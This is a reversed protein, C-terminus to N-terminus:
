AARAEVLELPDVRADPAIRRILGSLVRGPGVEVFEEVGSRRMAVVTERWRVPGTLAEVLERRVDEFPAASHCSFVTVRPPRLRVGHLAEAFETAAPAMYPSHFAAPVPLRKARVGLAHAGRELRGICELAGSLVSQNPSNDNAVTLGFREAIAAAEEIPALVAAMGTPPGMRAARDMAQGRAVALHLGDEVTLVGAAVLAALEGLSHGAVCAIPGAVAHLRAVSACFLAPQLRATDTALDGEFPDRGLAARALGLLQPLHQEVEAAMHEHQSGQGPFVLALEPGFV